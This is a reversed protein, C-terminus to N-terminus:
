EVEKSDAEYIRGQRGGAGNLLGLRLGDIGRVGMLGCGM